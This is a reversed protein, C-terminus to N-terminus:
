SEEDSEIWKGFEVYFWDMFEMDSTDFGLGELFEDMSGSDYDVGYNAYMYKAGNLAIEKDTFKSNM